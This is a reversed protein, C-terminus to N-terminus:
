PLTSALNGPLHFAAEISFMIEGFLLCRTSFTVASYTGRRGIM